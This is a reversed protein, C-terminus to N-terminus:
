ALAGFHRFRAGLNVFAWRAGSCADDIEGPTALASRLAATFRPWRGTTGDGALYHLTQPALREHLRRYLMSGGLQSGEVVYAVGWAFASPLPGAPLGTEGPSAAGTRAPAGLDQSIRSQRGAQAAQWGAPWAGASMDLRDIDALWDGIIAVHQLYDDATTGSQAIPLGGDLRSHLAHTAERLAALADAGPRATASLVPVQPLPSRQLSPLLDAM